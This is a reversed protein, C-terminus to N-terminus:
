NKKSIKFIKNKYKEYIALLRNLRHNVASKSVQPKTLKSLESLSLHPNSIRLKAIELLPPTLKEVIDKCKLIVKLKEIQKTSSTVVKKINSTEFNVSRNTNNKIEKLIKINELEFYSKTTGIYALLKEFNEFSKSYILITGNKLIYTKIKIDIYKLLLTKLINAIFPDRLRFEFHYTKNPNQFYASTLIISKIFTNVCCLKKFNFTIIDPPVNLLFIDTKLSLNKLLKGFNENSEIICQYYENKSFNEYFKYIYSLQINYSTKLINGVKSVFKMTPLRLAFKINQNDKIVIGCNKFVIYLFVKECCKNEIPQNLIEEKVKLSFSIDEM